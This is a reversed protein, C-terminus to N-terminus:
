GSPYLYDALTYGLEQPCPIIVKDAKGVLHVKDAPVILADM